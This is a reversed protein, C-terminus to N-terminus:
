TVQNKVKLDFWEKDFEAVKTRFQSKPKTMGLKQTVAEELQSKRNWDSDDMTFNGHFDMKEFVTERILKWDYSPRRGRKAVYKEPELRIWEPKPEFPLNACWKLCVNRPIWCWMLIEDQLAKKSLFERWSIWRERCLYASDPVSLTDSLLTRPIRYKPSAFLIWSRQGDFFLIGASLERCLDYIAQEKKQENIFGDDRNRSRWEVIEAFSIWDRAALQKRGFEAIRLERGRDRRRRRERKQQDVKAQEELSAQEAASVRNGQEDLYLLTPHIFELRGSM